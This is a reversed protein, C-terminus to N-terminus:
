GDRDLDLPHLAVTTTSTSTAGQALKVKGDRKFPLRAEGSEVLLDVAWRLEPKNAVQALTLGLAMFSVTFGVPVDVPSGNKLKFGANERNKVVQNENLDITFKFRDLDLDFLNPNKLRTLLEFSVGSLSLEKVKMHRVEVTPPKPLPVIGEYRAPIGFQVEENGVHFVAEVAYPAEKKQLFTMLNDGLTALPFRMEFTTEKSKQAPLELPTATQGDALRKGDLDLAYDLGELRVGIKNPNKIEVDFISHIADLTIKKVKMGVIKLEPEKVGAEKLLARITKCGPLLPVVALSTSVLLDRRRMVVEIARLRVSTCFM